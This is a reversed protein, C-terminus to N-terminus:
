KNKKLKNVDVKSSIKEMHKQVKMLNDPDMHALDRKFYLLEFAISYMATGMDETPLNLIAQAKRLAM